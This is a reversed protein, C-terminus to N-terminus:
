TREFDIGAHSDAADEMLLRLAAFGTQAKGPLEDWDVARCEDQLMEVQAPRLSLPPRTSLVRDLQPYREGGMQAKCWDRLATWDAHEIMGAQKRPVDGRPQLYGIIDGIM